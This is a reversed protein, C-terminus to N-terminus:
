DSNCLICACHNFQSHLYSGNVCKSYASRKLLIKCRVCSKNIQKVLDRGEIIYAYKLAYRLTTEVGSHKASEHHWHVENIISYALPSQKEVLPVCFTLSSLDRMTDTMTQISTVEQTPLIRGSYYLIGNKEFSIKEYRGKSNFHKVEETAKKFFYMSAENMEENSINVYDITHSLNKQTTNVHKQCKCIFQKVLALIRLVKEFRFKNPDIIYRSYTYRALVSDQYQTLFTAPKTNNSSIVENSKESATICVSKIEDYTKVPFESENLKMWDFGNQWSSDIDVDKLTAGKRTGLDAPMDAPVRSM